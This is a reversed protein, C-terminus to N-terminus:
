VATVIEPGCCYQERDATGEGQAGCRKLALVMLQPGGRQKLKCGIGAPLNGGPQDWDRDQSVSAKVIGIDVFGPRTGHCQSGSYNVLRLLGAIRDAVDSNTAGAIGDFSPNTFAAPLRHLLFLGSGSRLGRWRTGNGAVIARNEMAATGIM